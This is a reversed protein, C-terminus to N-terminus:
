APSKMLSQGDGERTKELIWDMYEAVKTYVGPQEKRACGEGWSSIGVLHWMENHQCVLPGGSDGQPVTPLFLFHYFTIVSM